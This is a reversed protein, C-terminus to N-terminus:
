TQIFERAADEVGRISRILTAVDSVPIHFNVMDIMLQAVTFVHSLEGTPSANWITVGIREIAHQPLEPYALRAARECIGRFANDTKTDM